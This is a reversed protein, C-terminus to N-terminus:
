IEYSFGLASFVARLFGHCMPSCWRIPSWMWIRTWHPWTRTPRVSAVMWCCWWRTWADGHNGPYGNAPGPRLPIAKLCAPFDIFQPEFLPFDDFEISSKRIIVPPHSKEADNLDPNFCSSYPSIMIIIPTPKLSWLVRQDSLTAISFWWKKSASWWFDAIFTGHEDM